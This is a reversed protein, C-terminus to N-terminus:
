LHMGIQLGIKFGYLTASRSNRGYVLPVRGFRFVTHQYALDIGAAVPVWRNLAVSPTLGAELTYGGLSVNWPAVPFLVGTRRAQAGAHLTGAAVPGALAHFDLVMSVVNAPYTFVVQGTLGFLPGHYQLSFDGRNAWANVYRCKIGFKVGETDFAFRRSVPVPPAVIDLDVGTMALANKGDGILASDADGGSHSAGLQWLGLSGPTQVLKLAAIAFAGNERTKLTGGSIMWSQYVANVRVRSKLVDRPWAPRVPTGPETVVGTVLDVIRGSSFEIKRVADRRLATEAGGEPIFIITDRTVDKVTGSLPAGRMLQITDATLTRATLAAILVAATLTCICRNM